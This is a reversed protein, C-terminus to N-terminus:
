RTAKNEWFRWGIVRALEYFPWAAWARWGSVHSIPERLYERDAVERDNFRQFTPNQYANDHAKCYDNLPDDAPLSFSGIGCRVPPDISDELNNFGYITGKADHWLLDQGLELTILEGKFNVNFTDGPKANYIDNYFIRM